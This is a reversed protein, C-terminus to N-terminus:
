RLPHLLAVRANEKISVGVEPVVLVTEIPGELALTSALHCGCALIRENPVLLMGDTAAKISENFVVRYHGGALDWWGYDDDESRKQPEIEVTCCEEHEGGGFDIQGADEISFISDVTLHVGRADVQKDRYVTGSLFSDFLEDPKM